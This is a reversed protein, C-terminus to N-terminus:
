IAISTPHSLTQASLANILKVKTKVHLKIYSKVYFYCEDCRVDAFIHMCENVPPDTMSYLAHANEHRGQIVKNPDHQM